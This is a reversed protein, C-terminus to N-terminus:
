SRSDSYKRPSYGEGKQLDSWIPHERDDQTQQKVTIKDKENAMV